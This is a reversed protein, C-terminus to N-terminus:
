FVLGNAEYFGKRLSDATETRAFDAIAQGCISQSLLGAKLVRDVDEVVLARV